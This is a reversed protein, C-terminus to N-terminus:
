YQAVSFRPGNPFTTQRPLSYLLYDFDFLPESLKPRGHLLVIFSRKDPILDSFVHM